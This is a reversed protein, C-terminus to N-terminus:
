VTGQKKPLTIWSGLKLNYDHPSIIDFGAGNFFTIEGIYFKDNLVFFDIRCTPFPAALKSAVACMEDYMEPKAPVEDSQNTFGFDVTSLYKWDSDFILRKHGSYRNLDVAICGVSGHGENCNNFCFFKYDAPVFNKGDSLLEEIVISPKIQQYHWEGYAILYKEKLWKRVKKKTAAIDLESKNHVIINNGSGSTSKIVFSDPLSDFPIEEASFGHWYLAPLKDGYGCDEIYKRASFKDACLPMLENRYFLKLWNLKENYTQPDSLNLKNRCKIRFLLKIDAQPNLKYLINFPSLILNKLKKNM